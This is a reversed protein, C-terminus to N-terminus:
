NTHPNDKSRASIEAMGVAFTLMLKPTPDEVRNQLMLLRTQRESEQAKIKMQWIQNDLELHRWNREKLELEKQALLLQKDMLPLQAKMEMIKFTNRLPNYDSAFTKMRSFFRRVAKPKEAGTQSSVKSLNNVIHLPKFRM